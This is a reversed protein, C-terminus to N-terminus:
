EKKMDLAPEKKKDDDSVDSSSTQPNELSIVIMGLKMLESVSLSQTINELSLLKKIRKKRFNYWKLKDFNYNIKLGCFVAASFLDNYAAPKKYRGEDDVEYKELYETLEQVDRVSRTSLLFKRGFLKIEKAKRTKNTGFSEISDIKSDVSKRVM